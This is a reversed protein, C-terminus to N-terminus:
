LATIKVTAATSKGGFLSGTPREVIVRWSGPPLIESQKMNLVSDSSLVQRHTFTGGGLMKKRAKSYAQFDQENMLYVNVPKPNATVAVEVRRQMPLSFSYERGQGEELSVTESAVTEPGAIASHVSSGTTVKVFLYVVGALVCLLVLTVVRRAPKAPAPASVTSLVPPPAPPTAPAAAQAVVPAGCQPCAAAKDSVERGCETCKTLAM